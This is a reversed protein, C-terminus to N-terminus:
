CKMKTADNGTCHKGREESQVEEQADHCVRYLSDMCEKSIFEKGPMKGDANYIGKLANLSPQSGGEAAIKWHRIGIEHNGRNYYEALLLRCQTKGRRKREACVQMNM